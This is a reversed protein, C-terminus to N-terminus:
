LKSRSILLYWQIEAVFHPWKFTKSPFPHQDQKTGGFCIWVCCQKTNSTMCFLFPLPYFYFANQYVKCNLLINSEYIELKYIYVYIYYILKTHIFRYIYLSSIYSDLMYIHHCTSHLCWSMYNPIAELHFKILRLTKVKKILAKSSKFAKRRLIRKLEGWSGNSYLSLRLKM